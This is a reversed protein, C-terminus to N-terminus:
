LTINFEQATALMNEPNLPEVVSPDLGAPALSPADEALPGAPSAVRAARGGGIHRAVVFGAVPSVAEAAACSGSAFDAPWASVNADGAAAACM